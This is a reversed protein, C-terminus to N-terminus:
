DFVVFLRCVLHGRDTGNQLEDIKKHVAVKRSDLGVFNLIEQGLVRLDGDVGLGQERHRLVHVLHTLVEDLHVGHHQVVRLDSRQATCSLFFNLDEVCSCVGDTGFGDPTVLRRGFSLEPEVCFVAFNEGNVTRLVQVLEECLV